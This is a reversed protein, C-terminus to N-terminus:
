TSHGVAQEDRGRQWVGVARDVEAVEDFVDLGVDPHPKLPHLAM